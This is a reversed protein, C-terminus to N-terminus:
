EERAVHDDSWGEKDALLQCLKAIDQSHSNLLDIIIGQNAELKEIREESM